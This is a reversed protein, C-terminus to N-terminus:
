VVAFLLCGHIGLVFFDPLTLNIADASTFFDIGRLKMSLAMEHARQMNNLLLPIVIPLFHHPRLLHIPKIGRTRQVEIIRQGEQLILPFFRFVTTILVIILPPIRLASLISALRGAPLCTYSLYLSYLYFNTDNTRIILM